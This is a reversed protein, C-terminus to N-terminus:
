NEMLVAFDNNNPRWLIVVGVEKQLQRAEKISIKKARPTMPVKSSVAM